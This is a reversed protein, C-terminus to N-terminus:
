DLLTGNMSNRHVTYLVEENHADFPDYVAGKETYHAVNGEALSCIKKIDKWIGLKRMAQIGRYYLTLNFSRGSDYNMERIDPRAEYIEVTYGRKALNIGLFSGAMGAGIILVKNKRM